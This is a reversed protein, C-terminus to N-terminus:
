SRLRRRIPRRRLDFSHGDVSGARHLGRGPEQLRAYRPQRHHIPLFRRQGSIRLCLPPTLWHSRALVLLSLKRLLLGTSDIADRSRAVPRPLHPVRAQTSAERPHSRVM